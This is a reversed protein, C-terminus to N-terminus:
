CHQVKFAHVFKTWQLVLIMIKTLIDILGKLKNEKFLTFSTNRLLNIKEEKNCIKTIKGLVKFEGDVIENYNENFFYYMYVPLVSSFQFKGNSECIMDVMGNAQLNDVFTNMKELM